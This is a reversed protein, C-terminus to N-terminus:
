SFTDGDKWSGDAFCWRGPISPLITAVIPPISRQENLIHTEAWLISKKQWNLRIWLILIWIVSFKIIGLKGSIGYYRHLSIIKWRRFLEGSCIIWTQSSIVQRFSLQIQHYRRLCGFRFQQLINLFCM